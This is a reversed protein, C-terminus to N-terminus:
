MFGGSGKDFTLYYRYYLYIRFWPGKDLINGVKELCSSVRGFCCDLVLSLVKWAGGENMQRVSRPNRSICPRCGM